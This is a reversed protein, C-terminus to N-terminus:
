GKLLRNIESQDLRNRLRAGYNRLLDEEFKAKTQGALDEPYLALVEDPEIMGTIEDYRIEFANNGVNTVFIPYPYRATIEFRPTGSIEASLGGLPLEYNIYCSFMGNAIHYTTEIREEGNEVVLKEKFFPFSDTMRILIHNETGFNEKYEKYTM